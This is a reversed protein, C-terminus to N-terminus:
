PLLVANMQISMLIFMFSVKCVAQVAGYSHPINHSLNIAQSRDASFRRLSPLNWLEEDQLCVLDLGNFGIIQPQWLWDPCLNWIRQAFAPPALRRNHHHWDDSLTFAVNGCSKSWCWSGIYHTLYLAMQLSRCSAKLTHIVVGEAWRLREHKLFLSYVSMNESCLGIGTHELHFFLHRKGRSNNYDEPSVSTPKSPYERSERNGPIFGCFFSLGFWSWWAYM